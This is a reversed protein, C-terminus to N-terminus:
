ITIAVCQLKNYKWLSLIKKGRNRTRTDDDHMTPKTKTTDLSPTQQQWFDIFVVDVVIFVLSLSFRCVILCQALTHTRQWELTHKNHVMSYAIEVWLWVVLKTHLRLSLRVLTYQLSHFSIAVIIVNKIIMVITIITIITIYTWFMSNSQLHRCCVMKVFREIKKRERKKVRNFGQIWM